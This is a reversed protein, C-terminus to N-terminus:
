DFGRADPVTVSVIARKLPEGGAVVGVAVAIWVPGAAGGTANRTRAPGAGPVGAACDSLEGGGAVSKASSVAAAPM